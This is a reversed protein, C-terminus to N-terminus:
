SIIGSSKIFIARMSLNTWQNQGTQQTQLNVRVMKSTGTVFNEFVSGASIYVTRTEGGSLVTDSTVPSM